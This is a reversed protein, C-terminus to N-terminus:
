MEKDSKIKITNLKKKFLKFLTKKKKKFSWFLNRFKFKKVINTLIM